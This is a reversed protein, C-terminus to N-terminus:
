PSPQVRVREVVRAGKLLSGRMGEVTLQSSGGVFFGGQGSAEGVNIITGAPLEVSTRHTMSNGWEPLVAADIRAAAAGRTEDLTWFGGFEQAGREKIEFKRKQPNWVKVPKGNNHFRHIVLPESIKV